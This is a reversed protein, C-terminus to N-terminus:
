LSARIICIWRSCLLSRAYITSSRRARRYFTSWGDCDLTIRDLTTRIYSRWWPFRLCRNVAPLYTSVNYVTCRKRNDCRLLIRKTYVVAAIGSTRRFLRLRESM